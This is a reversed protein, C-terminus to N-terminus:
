IQIAMIKESLLYAGTYVALCITMVIIGLPNHYLGDLYGGFSFDVYLLIFLPMMNMLKQEMRKGSIETQIAEMLENKESIRAATMHIIKIFDGGSRKAFVFVECFSRVDELGSRNAFDYLLQELPINFSMCTTMYRLEKTMLAHQGYQMRMEQYAERFANEISYGAAMSTAACQISDKFQRCLIDQRKKMHQIKRRRRFFPYFCWFVALVTWSRYFLYAFGGSLLLYQSMMLLREKWSFSYDRYDIGTHEQANGNLVTGSRHAQGHKATDGNKGM